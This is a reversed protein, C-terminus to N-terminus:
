FHHIITDVFHRCHDALSSLQQSTFVTNISPSEVLRDKPQSPLPSNFQDQSTNATTNKNVSQATTDKTTTTTHYVEEEDDSDDSLLDDLLDDDLQNNSKTEEKATIVSHKNVVTKTEEEEDSDDSDDSLLDDLLDDDLKSTTKAMKIGDKELLAQKIEEERVKIM